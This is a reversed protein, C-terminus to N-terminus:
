NRTGVDGLAGNNTNLNWPHLYFTARKKRKSSLCILNRPFAVVQQHVPRVAIANVVTQLIRFVHMQAINKHSRAHDYRDLLDNCYGLACEVNNTHARWVSTRKPPYLLFIACCTRKINRLTSFSNCHWHNITTKAGFPLHTSQEMSSSLLSRLVACTYCTRQLTLENRPSCLM